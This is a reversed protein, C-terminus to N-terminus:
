VASRLHYSQNPVLAGSFGHACLLGKSRASISGGGRVSNPLDRSISLEPLHPLRITYDQPLLFLTPLYVSLFATDVGGGSDHMVLLLCILGPVLFIYSM